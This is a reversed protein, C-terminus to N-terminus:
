FTGLFAARGRFLAAVWLFGHDNAKQSFVIDNYWKWLFIFLSNEIKSTASSVISIKSPSKATKDTNSTILITKYTM